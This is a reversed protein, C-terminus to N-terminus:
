REGCPINFQNRIKQEILSRGHQQLNPTYLVAVKLTSNCNRQWCTKRGHNEIRSKVTASEGVDILYYKSNSHCVIAYVGSRDELSGVSTYPGDFTYNGIYIAM